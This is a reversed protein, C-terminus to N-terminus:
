RTLNLAHPPATGNLGTGDEYKGMASLMTESFWGGEYAVAGPPANTNERKKRAERDVPQNGRSAAAYLASGRKVDRLM